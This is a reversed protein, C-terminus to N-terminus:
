ALETEILGFAGDRRRYLVNVANTRGNYFVFFNEHGLLAMQEMAEAEDMPTLTFKKRRVIIFEEAEDREISEAEITEIAV